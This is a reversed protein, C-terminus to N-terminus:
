NGRMFGISLNTGSNFGYGRRLGLTAGYLKGRVLRKEGFHLNYEGTHRGNWSGGEGAQANSRIELIIDRSRETAIRSWAFLTGGGGLVAASGLAQGRFTHGEAVNGHLYMPAQSRVRVLHSIRGNAREFTLASVSRNDGWARRLGLMYASEHDPEGMLDRLNANHDERYFEGYAEVGARPPALRFFLSALQNLDGGAEDRSQSKVIGSFPLTANSWNLSGPTRRAHFFRSGGLELGPMGRPSISAMFASSIRSREGPPLDAYPSAELVGVQWQATGRGVWLPVQRGEALIRPYGAGETGLVLPYFHAPGWHQSQTTVGLGLHRLDLRAYSEGADVAAYPKSGFRYPLDIGVGWAPERFDGPATPAYPEFPRNESFIAIPQM